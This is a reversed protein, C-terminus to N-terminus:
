KAGKRIEPKRDCKLGLVQVKEIAEWIDEEGDVIDARYGADTEYEVAEFFLRHAENMLEIARTIKASAFRNM